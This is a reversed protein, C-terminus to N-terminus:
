LHSINTAWWLVNNYTYTQLRVADWKLWTWWWFKWNQELVVIKNLWPYATDVIAVHWYPNGKTPRFIIYDNQKPIQLANKIDNNIRVYDKWRASQKWRNVVGTTWLRVPQSRWLYEANHRILDACQFDVNQPSLSDWDVRKGLWLSKYTSYKNTPTIDMTILKLNLQKM